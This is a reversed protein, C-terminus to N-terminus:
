THVGKRSAIQAVLSVLILGVTIGVGDALLDGWEASRTPTFSQLVEILGGYGLLAVAVRAYARGFSLWAVGALTAFAAAHNLKDWGLNAEKPPAPTLALWTIVCLLLVLAVRWHKAMGPHGSLALALSQM